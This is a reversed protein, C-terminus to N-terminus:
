GVLPRILSKSLVTGHKGEGAAPGLWGMGDDVVTSEPIFVQAYCSGSFVEAGSLGMNDEVLAYGPIVIKVVQRM